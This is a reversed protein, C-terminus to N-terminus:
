LPQFILRLKEARAADSAAIADWDVQQNLMAEINERLPENRIASRAFVARLVSAAVMATDIMGEPEIFTLKIASSALEAMPFLAPAADIEADVRINNLELVAESEDETFLRAERLAFKEDPALIAVCRSKQSTTGSFVIEGASANEIGVNENARSFMTTFDLEVRNIIKGDVPMNFAFQANYDEGQPVFDFVVGATAVLTVSDALPDNIMATQGIIILVPTQDQDDFVHLSYQDPAKYRLQCLINLPMPLNMRMDFALSNLEDPPMKINKVMKRVEEESPIQAFVAGTALVLLAIIILLRSKM